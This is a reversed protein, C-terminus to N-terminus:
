NFIEAFFNKVEIWSRKDALSNYLIGIGNPDNAQPNTFGHMTNGYVHLQWDVSAQDMEHQFALLQENPVMPDKAGHLALVKAHIKQNTLNADAALLGHISVAGKIDAGSRALELACMGGFCFGIMGIKANNVHDLKNVTDFAANVRQRLLARDATLPKILAMKEETTKGLKGKGYMDIAFGIYGLEAIKEAKQCSFDNRGSWDHGVLIAPKKGTHQDDYALYGELLTDGDHYEIKKTQLM